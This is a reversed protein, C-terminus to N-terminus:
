AVLMRQLTAEFRIPDITFDNHSANRDRQALAGYLEAYHAHHTGAIDWYFPDVFDGPSLVIVRCSPPAFVINTLAAGKVGIVSEAEGFIRAQERVSFAEPTITEFGYRASIELVEAENLLRRGSKPRLVHLRRTPPTATPLSAQPLLHKRLSQLAAPLKFLPPVHVPTLYALDRCRWVESVDHEHVTADPLIADITQRIVQRIGLIATKTVIIHRTPLAGLEVLYSLAAAQDVLWHGFNESWPRQLLLSCTDLTRHVQGPMTFPNRNSGAAMGKPVMGRTLFERASDALLWHRKGESLVVSGEGVVVADAFRLLSRDPFDTHIRSFNRVLKARLDPLVARDDVILPARRTIRGAEALRVARMLGFGPAAAAVRVAEVPGAIEIPAANSTSLTRRRALYLDRNNPGAGIAPPDVLWDSGFSEAALGPPGYLCVPKDRDILLACGSEVLEDYAARLEAFKGIERAASRILRAYGDVALMAFGGPKVLRGIEGLWPQMSEWSLSGPFADVAIVGDFSEDPADIPLQEPLLAFTAGEVHQRTWRVSARRRDLGTWENDPLAIQLGRLGHGLKSDLYLYHVGRRHELGAAWLRDVVADAIALDMGLAAALPSCKSRPPLPPLGIGVTRATEPPLGAATEILVESTPLSGQVEVDVGARALRAILAQTAFRHRNIRLGPRGDVRPGFSGPFQRRIAELLEDYSNM